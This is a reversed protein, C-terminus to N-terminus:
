RYERKMRTLLEDRQPGDMKKKIEEVALRVIHYHHLSAAGSGQTMELWVHHLADIDEKRLNPTHPGLSYEHKSCDPSFVELRLRPRPEPLREWADGTLKGQEDLTLKNSVGTM